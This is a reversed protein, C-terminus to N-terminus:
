AGRGGRGSGLESGASRSGGRHRCAELRSNTEVNREYAVAAPLSRSPTTATTGSSASATVADLGTDIQHLIDIDMAQAAASLFPEPGSVDLDGDRPTVTYATLQDAVNRYMVVKDVDVM